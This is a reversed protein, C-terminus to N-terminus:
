LAYTAEKPVAMNITTGTLGANSCSKTCLLRFHLNSFHLDIVHLTNGPTVQQKYSAAQHAKQLPSWCAEAASWFKVPLSRMASAVALMLLEASPGSLM